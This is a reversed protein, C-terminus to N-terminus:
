TTLAVQLTLPRYLRKGRNRPGRCEFRTTTRRTSVALPYECFPPYQYPVGICCRRFYTLATTARVIRGQGGRGSALLVRVVTAFSLSTCPFLPAPVGSKRYNCFSRERTLEATFMKVARSIRDGSEVTNDASDSLIYLCGHGVCRFAGGCKRLLDHAEVAPRATQPHSELM